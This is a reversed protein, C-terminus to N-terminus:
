RGLIPTILPLKDLRLNRRRARCNVGQQRQEKARERNGLGFFFRLFEAGDICRRRRLIDRACSNTTSGGARGVWGKWARRHIAVEYMHAVSPLSSFASDYTMRTQADSHGSLPAAVNCLVIWSFMRPPHQPIYDTEARGHLMM